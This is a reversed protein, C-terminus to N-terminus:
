VSETCSIAECSHRAENWRQVAFIFLLIRIRWHAFQLWQFCWELHFLKHRSRRGATTETSCIHVHSLSPSLNCTANRKSPCTRALFYSFNDNPVLRFFTKLGCAPIGIREPWSLQQSTSNAATITRENNDSLVKSVPMCQRYFVTSRTTLVHNFKQRMDREGLGLYVACAAASFRPLLM